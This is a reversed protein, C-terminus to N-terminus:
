IRPTPVVKPTEPWIRNGFRDRADRDASRTAVRRIVQVRDFPDRAAPKRDIAGAKATASPSPKRDIRRVVRMPETSARMPKVKTVVKIELEDIKPVSM